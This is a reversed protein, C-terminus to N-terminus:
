IATRVNKNRNISTNVLMTACAPEKRWMSDMTANTVHILARVIKADSRVNRALTKICSSVKTVCVTREMMLSINTKMVSVSGIKSLIILLSMALTVINKMQAHYVLVAM